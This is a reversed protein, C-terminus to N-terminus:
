KVTEHLLLTVRDSFHFKDQLECSRRLLFAKTLNLINTFVQELDILAAEGVIIAVIARGFVVFERVDAM